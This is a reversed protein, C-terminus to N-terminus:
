NASEAPEPRRSLKSNKRLNVLRKLLDYEPRDGILISRSKNLFEQRLAPQCLIDDAICGYAHLMDRYVEILVTDM